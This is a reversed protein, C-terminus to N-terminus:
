RLRRAQTRRPTEGFLRRYAASFHGMHWFGYRSATSAVRAPEPPLVQLDRRVRHLRLLALYQKPGVGYMDRFAYHVARESAHAAACIDHLMLPEALNARM